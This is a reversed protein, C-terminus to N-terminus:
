GGWSQSVLAAAPDLVAGTPLLDLLEGPVDIPAAGAYGLAQVGSSPLPFKVGYETVFFLAGGDDGPAYPNRALIGTGAPAMIRDVTGSSNAPRPVPVATQLRTPSVRAITVTVTPGASRFGACPLLASQGNVLQPPQPPLGPLLDTNAVISAAGLQDPRVPIPAVTTGPYANRLAPDALVLAAATASLRVLGDTRSLYLESVGTASNRVEYVQGIVGDRGAISPGRNGRGPVPPFNLDPGSPIPNLWAPMVLAPQTGAYGLALAAAPVALRFRRGQWILHMQRDPTAVLLGDRDTLAVTNAEGGLVLTTGAPEKASKSQACVTWPGAYLRKSDPVADPAGVIGIPSGVSVGALSHRSVSVAKPEAAAGLVLRASAYNLVPRLHNDLLLYRAGSEKVVIIVGPRRWATDGGPRFLGYIGFGGAIVVALLVGIFAGLVPRRNPPEYPDPRGGMLASNLRSVTFFYAHVQDKRSEM